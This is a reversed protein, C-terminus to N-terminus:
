LYTLLYTLLYDKNMYCRVCLLFDVNLNFDCDCVFDLLDTALLYFM